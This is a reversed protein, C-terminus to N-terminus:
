WQKIYDSIHEAADSMGELLSTLTYRRLGPQVGADSWRPSIYFVFVAPKFQEIFPWTPCPFCTSYLWEALTVQLHRLSFILSAFSCCISKYLKLHRPASIKFNWINDNVGTLISHQGHKSERLASIVFLCLLLRLRDEQCSRKTPSREWGQTSHSIVADLSVM